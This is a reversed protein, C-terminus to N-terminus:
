FNKVMLDFNKGLFTMRFFKTLFKTWWGGFEAGLMKMIKM